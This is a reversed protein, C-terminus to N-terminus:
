LELAVPLWSLSPTQTINSLLITLDLKCKLLIARNSSHVPFFPWHVHSLLHQPVLVGAVRACSPPFGAETQKYIGPGLQLKM